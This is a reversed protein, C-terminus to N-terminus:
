AAECRIGVEFIVSKDFIDREDQEFCCSGCLWGCPSERNTLSRVLINKNSLEEAQAEQKQKEALRERLGSLLYEAFSGGRHKARINLGCRVVRRVANIEDNLERITVIYLLGQGDALNNAVGDMGLAPHHRKRNGDHIINRPEHLQEELQSSIGVM